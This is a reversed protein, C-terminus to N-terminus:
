SQSGGLTEMRVGQGDLVIIMAEDAPVCFIRVTRRGRRDCNDASSPSGFGYLRYALGLEPTGKLYPAGAMIVNCPDHVHGHVFVLDVYAPLLRFLSMLHVWTPNPEYFPVTLAKLGARKVNERYTKPVPGKFLQEHALVVLRRKNELRNVFDAIITDLRRALKQTVPKMSPWLAIAQDGLEILKPEAILDVGNEELITRVGDMKSLARDINGSVFFIRRLQSMAEIVSAYSKTTELVRREHSKPDHRTRMEIYAWIAPTGKKRLEDYSEQDEPTLHDLNGLNEKFEHVLKSTYKSGGIDGLHVNLDCRQRGLLRILALPDSAEHTDAILGIRLKTARGKRKNTRLTSM